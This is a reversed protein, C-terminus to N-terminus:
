SSPSLGDSTQSDSTSSRLELEEQVGFQHRIADVVANGFTAMVDEILWSPVSSSKSIAYRMTFRPGQGFSQSVQLIPRLLTEDYLLDLSLNMCHSIVGFSERDSM